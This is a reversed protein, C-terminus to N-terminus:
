GISGPMVTASGSLGVIVPAVIVTVDPNLLVASVRAKVVWFPILPVNLEVAPVSTSLPEALM